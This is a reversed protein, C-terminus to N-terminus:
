YTQEFLGTDTSDFVSVSADGLTGGTLKLGVFQRNYSDMALISRFLEDYSVTM